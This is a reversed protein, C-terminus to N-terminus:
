PLSHQIQTPESLAGEVPTTINQLVPNGHRVQDESGLCYHRALDFDDLSLQSSVIYGGEFSFSAKDIGVRDLDLVTVARHQNSSAIDQNGATRTRCVAVFNGDVPFADEVGVLNM